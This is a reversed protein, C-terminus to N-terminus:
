CEGNNFKSNRCTNYDKFCKLSLFTIKDDALTDDQHIYYICTIKQLLKVIYICYIYIYICIYIYIYM